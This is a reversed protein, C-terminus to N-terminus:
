AYHEEKPPPCPVAGLHVKLYVDAVTNCVECREIEICGSYVGTAANDALAAVLDMIFGHDPQPYGIQDLSMWHHARLARNVVLTPDESESEFHKSDSM